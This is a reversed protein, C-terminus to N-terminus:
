GPTTVEDSTAVDETEADDSALEEHLEQLLAEIKDGYALSPDYIFVLEPLNRLRLSAMQSRFWGAAHDLAEQVEEVDEPSGIISYYVEARTTDRNVEVDTITVGTLRPDNSQEMM